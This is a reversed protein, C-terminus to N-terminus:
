TRMSAARPRSSSSRARTRTASSRRRGQDRCGLLPGDAAPLARAQARAPRRGPHDQGRHLLRHRLDLLAARRHGDPRRDDPEDHPHRDQRLQAGLDVRPDRGLPAAERHRRGGRADPFGQVPHGHRDGPAGDPHRRDHVRGRDPVAGPAARRPRHGPRAVGDLAFAALVLIQRTLGNIQKTLPTEEAATAQLM